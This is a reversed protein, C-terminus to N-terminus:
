SAPRQSGQASQDFGSQPGRQPVPGPGYLGQGPAGTGAGQSPARSGIVGGTVGLPQTATGHYVASSAPSADTYNYARFYLKQGPLYLSSNNRSHGMDLHHPNVFQPNDAHEVMYKTGRAIKGQDTIAIQFEGSPGTTVKLASISPPPAPQDSTSTNTQQEINSVGRQVSYLAEYLKQGIDPFQRIYDLWKVTM